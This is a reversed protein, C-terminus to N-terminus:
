SVIHTAIHDRFARMASVIHDTNYGVKSKEGPWPHYVVAIKEYSGEAEISTDTFGEGVAIILDREPHESSRGVQYFIKDDIVEAINQIYSDGADHARAAVARMIQSGTASVNKLTMAVRM